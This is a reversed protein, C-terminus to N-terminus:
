PSAIIKAFNGIPTTQSELFAGLFTCHGVFTFRVQMTFFQRMPRNTSPDFDKGSPEGLGARPLFAPQSNTPATQQTQQWARWPTFSPYQDPKYYSAFTVTGVMESIWLEGNSLLQSVHAQKPIGFRLSASDFQWPIPINNTGDNDYNAAGDALIEWFEIVPSSSTNLCFAFAREANAVIGAAMQMIQMQATTTNSGVWTGSDWVAPAKGRLSSIPAFNIPVLGTCYVGLASQIPGYTTLHRNYFVVSSCFNLLAQNDAELIPSVEFSCPVNGWSSFNEEDLTESRIGDIARFIVDSNAVVTSWQGTAGNGIIAETLIPNQITQWTLRDVPVQCSYVSKYSFVLLPGQGLAVNEVATFKMATIGGSTSPITFAGGGVIFTNETSQLVADRFQYAQTGSSGGVVDLYIFQNKTLISMANRGLGYAGMRGPQIGAATTQWTVIQGPQTYGGGASLNLLVVNIVGAGGSAQSIVQFNGAGQITIIQGNAPLGNGSDITGVTTSGIPNIGFGAAGVTANYNTVNGYASRVAINSGGVILNNLNVVIPNNVGDQIIVWLESQWLWAQPQGAIAGSPSGYSAGGSLPIHSSATYISLEQCSVATGTIAFAFVRGSFLAIIYANGNDDQCVTETMGQFILANWATTGTVARRAIAPRHSANKGTVTTNIAGAMVDPPLDLPSDGLNAGGGCSGLMDYLKKPEFPVAM